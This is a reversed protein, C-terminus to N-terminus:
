TTSQGVPPSAPETKKQFESVANVHPLDITFSLLAIYNESDVIGLLRQENHGFRYNLSLAEIALEHARVVTFEKGALFGDAVEESHEWYTRYAAKLSQVLKGREIYQTQPLATSLDTPRRILPIQWTNGDGLEMEYGRFVKARQMDEPKPPHDKDLGIWLLSGDDVAHWTQQDAFYGFRPPVANQSDHYCIITGSKDGPGLTDIPMIPLTELKVDAFVDAIGAAQIIARKAAVTMEHKISVGPLFYIPQAM